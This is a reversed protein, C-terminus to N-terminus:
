PRQPTPTENQQGKIAAGTSLIDIPVMQAQLYLKDGGVQPKLNEKKRAENPTYIAATIGEKLAKLRTIYDARLLADFDFEAVINVRQEPPLLNVLISNEIRELYPRLGFKYFGSIISDIGSGWATSSDTDNVLVSPVNMLRCVDKVQFSRTAILEADKPTLSIQEYKMDAELLFLTDEDGSVMSNFVKKIQERQPETLKHPVTLAAAPKGGRGYLKSVAQEAALGTGITNRGYSIPSMGIIGNGMLRVHWIESSSYKTTTRGDNYEYSLDGDDQLKVQMQSSMLPVIGVLTNGTGIIRRGYFNGRTCLMLMLTEVFEFRGQYRNVKGNFLLSLPHMPLLERSGDPLVKYINLPMSAVSESLLRTCAWFASLTLATSDTVRSAAPGSHGASDGSQLGPTRKGAGGSIFSRFWDFSAM